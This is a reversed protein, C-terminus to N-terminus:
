LDPKNISGIACALQDDCYTLHSAYRREFTSESESMGVTLIMRVVVIEIPHLSKTHHNGNNKQRSFMKMYEKKIFFFFFTIWLECSMMHDSLNPINNIKMAAARFQRSDHKSNTPTCHCNMQGVICHQRIIIEFISTFTPVVCM